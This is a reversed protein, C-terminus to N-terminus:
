ANDNSRLQAEIRKLRASNRISFILAIPWGVLATGVVIWMIAYEPIM